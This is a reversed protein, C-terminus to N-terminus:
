MEKNRAIFVVFGLLRFFGLEERKRKAGGGEGELEGDEEARSRSRKM